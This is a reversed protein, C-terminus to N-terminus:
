CICLNFQFALCSSRNNEALFWYSIEDQILMANKCFSIESPLWIPLLETNTWNPNMVQWDVILSCDNTLISITLLEVLILLIFMLISITLLEVLILLVFLWIESLTTSFYFLILWLFCRDHINTGEEVQIWVAVQLISFFCIMNHQNSCYNNIANNKRYLCFLIKCTKKCYRYSVKKWIIKKTKLWIGLVM